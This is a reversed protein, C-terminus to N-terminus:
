KFVFYLDVTHERTNQPFEVNDEVASGPALWSHNEKFFDEVLRADFVDGPRFKLSRLVHEQFNSDRTGTGSFGITGVRFQAGEDVDISLDIVAQADDTKTDPVPTVNIYGYQDYHKRLNDLGERIKGVNFVEGPQIPFFAKLQEASFAKQGTLELSKLRYQLNQEIHVDVSVRRDRDDVSLLRSISQTEVKYYGHEQYLYRVRDSLEKVADDCDCEGKFMEEFRNQEGIALGADGHFHIKGIITKGHNPQVPGPRPQEDQAYMPAGVFLVLVVLRLAFSAGRLM